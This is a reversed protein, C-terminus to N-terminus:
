ENRPSLARAVDDPTDWDDLQRAEVDSVHVSTANVRELLTYLGLNGAALHTEV